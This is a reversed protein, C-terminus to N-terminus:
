ILEMMVTVNTQGAAVAGSKTIKVSILDGAAVTFSNVLDNVTGTATNSISTTLAQDVGGKRVTFTVTAAGTGAGLVFVELNRLTGPRPVAVQLETAGAVATAFAPAFFLATAVTGLDGSGFQLPGGGAAIWGTAGNGTEKWYWSSDQGGNRRSFLSGPRATVAGEPTGNGSRYTHGIANTTANLGIHPTITTGVETYDATTANWNNATDQILGTFGGVGADEYRIGADIQDAVNGVTNINIINAGNVLYRVASRYLGAAASINNGQLLVADCDLTLAQVLIADATTAGANVARFINQGVSIRTSDTVIALTGGTVENVCNNNGVRVITSAVGGTPEVSFIPGATAGSTRTMLNYCITSHDCRIIRLVANATAYVGSTIVNGVGACDSCNTMEVFGNLVTNDNFISQGLQGTADAELRVARQETVDTHVIENGLIALSSSTATGTAVLGIETQCNTLFNECIWGNLIGQEIGVGFRACGDFESNMIWFRQVLNAAAGLIHVGDGAGAVMGQFRCQKVQISSLNGVGTGIQLLHCATSPNVVNSGDMTLSQFTVRSCNGRLRFMSYAGGGADGAQKLVSSSGGGLFMVNSVGNLDISYPNAGDKGMLYTRSSPFYVVGGGAATCATIAALVAARDDTVANGVAGYDAVSFYNFSQNLISWATDGAGTKQYAGATGARLYFSGIAASVGLGATPDATDSLLLVSNLRITKAAFQKAPM